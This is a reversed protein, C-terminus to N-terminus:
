AVKKLVIRRSLAFVDPAISCLTKDMWRLVKLVPIPLPVTFTKAIVGGSGLFIFFEEPQDVQIKLAPMAKEFRVHDDFLLRSVACNASWPDAPDNCVENEDFINVDTSWGEHRMLRLVSRMALSAHVDHILIYGGPKLCHALTKLFVLPKAVHHIMHSLVFVDVSEPHLTINNADLYQQVWPQGHVDTMVFNKNHIFEKSFGPGSGIEIVTQKGDIYHNMWSFRNKLLFTLNPLPHEFFRRRAAVLDGENKMRNQSHHPFYTSPLM